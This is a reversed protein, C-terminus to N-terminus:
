FITLPWWLIRDTFLEESLLWGPHFCQCFLNLYSIAEFGQKGIMLPPKTELNHFNLSFPFSCGAVRNLARPLKAPAIHFKGRLFKFWPSAFQPLHFNQLHGFVFAPTVAAIVTAQRSPHLVRCLKHLGQDPPFFGESIMLSITFGFFPSQSRVYMQIRYHTLSHTPWLSKWWPFVVKDPVSTCWPLRLIKTSFNRLKWHEVRESTHFATSYVM